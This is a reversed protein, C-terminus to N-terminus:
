QRGVHVTLKGHVLQWHDAPAGDDLMLSVADLTDLDHFDMRVLQSLLHNHVVGYLTATGEATAVLALPTIKLRVGKAKLYHVQVYGKIREKADSSLSHVALHATPSTTSALRGAGRVTAGKTTEPLDTILRFSNIQHQSTGAGTGATFGFYGDPVDIQADTVDMRVQGDLSVTVHGGQITAQYTVTAHHLFGDDLPTPISATAISTTNGHIDIGIHNGDPDNFADGNPYTDFEVAFSSADIGAYGLDPGSRGLASPSRAIAFTFGDAGPDPGFASGPTIRFDFDAQFFHAAVRQKMFMAGASNFDTTRTLAVGTGSVQAVGVLQFNAPELAGNNVLAFNEARAPGAGGALLALGLGVVWRLANGRM